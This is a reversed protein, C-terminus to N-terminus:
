HSELEAILQKYRERELPHVANPSLGHSKGDRVAAVAASRDGARLKADALHFYFPAAPDQRIAEEMDAIAPAPQGAALYAVARTDLYNALPGTRDLVRGILRLAEEGPAAKLALLWARNNLAPVYDPHKHLLEQYFALAEDFRNRIEALEGQAQELDPHDPHERVAAALQTALTELEAPSARGTRAVTLGSAAVMEPPCTKWAGTCLTLAESVHEHRSLFEALALVAQPRNGQAADRLLKEAETTAGLEELTLAVNVRLDAHKGAFDLLLKTAEASRGDKAAVRATLGVTRLSDPEVARLAELWPQAAGAQGRRLLSQVHWAILTPNQGNTGLLSLVMEDARAAEGDAQVLRALLFQGDPPLPSEKTLKELLARAERRREPRAALVQARALEDERSASPGAQDLLALAERFKAYSGAAAAGLALERRAASRVADSAKVGPDLLKRLCAEAKAGPGRRAYFDAAVQLVVPDAPRRALLSEYQERAKEPQNVLEYAPGLVFPADDAPLKGRAEALASEAKKVDTGALLHILALWTGPSKESLELAKRLHKEAEAPEGAARAVQALWQYDRPDKSSAPVARRAQELAQRRGPGEGSSQLLSLEAARRSLDPTTLTQDACDSLLERAENYRHRRYLGDVALRIVAPDREGFRVAEVFQDTAHDGNGELQAIRAELLAVPAWRPRRNRAIALQRKAEAIQSRDGKEALLVLLAAEGWASLGGGPGELRRIDAVRTQVAGTDGARYDVELLRLRVDLDQPAREAIQRWLEKAHNTNGTAFNADALGRLARVQDDGKLSDVAHQLEALTKQAEAPQGRAALEIRALLLTANPGSKAEADRLIQGAQKENGQRLALRALALWPAVQEPHRDREAELLRRADDAKGSALLLDARLRNAEPGKAQNEPLRALADEVVKFQREAAPRRLQKALLLQALGLNLEPSAAASRRYAQEADDLKGLSLLAAIEGRCAPAWSPDLRLARRYAALAAEPDDLHEYCSALLLDVQRQDFPSVSENRHRELLARAEGWDGKRIRIRAELRAAGPDKAPDLRAAVDTAATVDDMELFLEGASALQAPTSTPTDVVQQALKRADDRHNTLLDLRAATLNLNPDHPHKRLGEGIRERAPAVHGRIEDVVAALVYVDASDAGPRGTVFATEREADEWQGYRAFYRAAALRASVSEPNASALKRMVDDAAEPTRRRDRLIRAHGLYATECRPDQKEVTEYLRLAEDYEGSAEACRGLVCEATSDDAKDAHLAQARERAENVLGADAALVAAERRVDTAGPNLDAARALARYARRLEDRSRAADRLSRGYRAQADADDPKFELYDHLLQRADDTRGEDAAVNAQELLDAAGRKLQYAHVFHVAVLTAAFAGSLILLARVNVTRNM